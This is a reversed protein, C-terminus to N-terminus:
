LGMRIEFSQWFRPARARLESRLEYTAQRSFESSGNRGDLVDHHVGCLPVGKRHEWKDKGGGMGTHKPFHAFCTPTRRCGPALCAESRYAIRANM